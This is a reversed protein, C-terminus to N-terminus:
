NPGRVIMSSFAPRCARREVGVRLTVRRVKMVIKNKALGERKVKLENLADMATKPKHKDRAVTDKGKSEDSAAATPSAAGAVMSMLNALPNSETGGGKKKLPSFFDALDGPTSPKGGRSGRMSSKRGEDANAAGKKKGILSKMTGVKLLTKSKKWRKKADTKSPKLSLAPDREILPLKLQSVKEFDPEELRLRHHLRNKNWVARVQEM